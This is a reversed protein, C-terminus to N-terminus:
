CYYQPVCCLTYMGAVGFFGRAKGLGGCHKNGDELMKLMASMQRGSYVAEDEIVVLEEQSTRDIKVIRHRSDSTNSAVIYFRLRNEYLIFKNFALAADEPLVQPPPNSSSSRTEDTAGNSPKSKSSPDAFAPTGPVSHLSVPTITTSTTSATEADTTPQERNAPM